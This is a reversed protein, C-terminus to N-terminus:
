HPAWAGEGSLLGRHWRRPTLAIGRAYDEFLWRAFNTRTWNSTGSIRVAGRCVLDSHLLRQLSSSMLHDPGLHDLVERQYAVRVPAAHPGHAVIAQAAAEGTQLAQGIGEGTLVDCALAADGVFLTRGSALVADTVRAPIPWAKSPSEAVAHPGLVDRIGPRDLLADWMPKMQKTAFGPTREIGFGLNVRGGPLPFCWAYGPLLEPEFWIWLGRSAETTVNTFYQRYGHWEGLYPQTPGGKVPGALLKRLPSWMGDAGIAFPATIVGTSGAAGQVEIRVGDHDQTAGTMAHGDLVEAGTGRALEVLANDLDIRTAVAAFLGHHRPLPFRLVRRSSSSIWIDEVPQWSPITTPDLGLSQLRRLAGTTLGDGCCKDRPFTAKDVVVVRKGAKALTIAAATGAPGAGVIVVDAVQESVYESPVPTAGGAPVRAPSPRSPRDLAACCKELMM